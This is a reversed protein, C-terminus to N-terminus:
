KSEFEALAQDPIPENREYIFAYVLYCSGSGSAMIRIDKIVGGANKIADMLGNVRKDDKKHDFKNSTVFSCSKIYTGM